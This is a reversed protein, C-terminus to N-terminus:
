LGANEASPSRIANTDFRVPSESTHVARRCDAPAASSARATRRCAAITAPRGAPDPEIQEARPYASMQTTADSPPAHSSSQRYCSGSQQSPAPLFVPVTPRDDDADSQELLGLHKCLLELARIKSWFWLKVVTDTHGDGAAANKKVV